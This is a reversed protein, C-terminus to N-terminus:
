KDMLEHKLRGIYVWHYIISTHLTYYLIMDLGSSTLHPRYCLTTCVTYMFILIHYYRIIGVIFPLPLETSIQTQVHLVSYSSLPLGREPSLPVRVSSCLGFVHCPLIARTRVFMYAYVYLSFQIHTCVSNFHTNYVCYVTFSNDKPLYSWPKNTRWRSM